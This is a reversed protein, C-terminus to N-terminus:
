ISSVDKVEMFRKISYTLFLRITVFFSSFDREEKKQVRFLGKSWPDLM